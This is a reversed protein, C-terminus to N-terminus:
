LVHKFGKHKSWGYFLPPRGTDLVLDVNGNKNELTLIYRKHGSHHKVCESWWPRRNGQVHVATM